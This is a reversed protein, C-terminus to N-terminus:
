CEKGVRREESRISMDITSYIKLGGTFIINEAQEYTYGYEKVLDKIVESRVYDTFYSTIETNSKQGPSLNEKINYNLASEYESDDIYGLDHMRALVIEQRDVADQNYVCAYRTGSINVYGVIDETPINTADAVNVRTYPAYRTDAKPVGALLASEAINLDIAEKSFYTDSAAQIGFSSQGLPITKLYYELIQDKSLARELEIALYMEKLKREYADLVSDDKDLYLNRALQQTITSAGQATLDRAQINHIMSGVIRRIDIGFHDEFRHDEIAIFANKLHDPLNDLSIIERDITSQVVEIENGEEDLIVSSESLMSLINTPDIDPASRVTATIIGISAGAGVFIIIVLIILVMKIISFRKKSKKKKNKKAM